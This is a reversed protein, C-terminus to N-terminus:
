SPYNAGKVKYAFGVVVICCTYRVSLGQKRGRLTLTSFLMGQEIHPARIHHQNMSRYKHTYVNLCYTYFWTSISEYM